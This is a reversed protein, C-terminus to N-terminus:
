PRWWPPAKADSVRSHPKTQRGGKLPFHHPPQMLPCEMHPLPLTDKCAVGVAAADEVSTGCVESAMGVVVAPILLNRANRRTYPLLGGDYIVKEISQLLVHTRSEFHIEYWKYYHSYETWVRM